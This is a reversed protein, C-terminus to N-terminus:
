QWNGNCARAGSQCYVVLGSCPSSQTCVPSESGSPVYYTIGTTPIYVDGNVITPLAFSAAQHASSNNFQPVTVAFTPNHAYINSNSTSWELALSSNYANLEAGAINNAYPNAAMSVTAMGWVVGTSTDTGNSTALVSGGPYYINTSVDPSSDYVPTAFYGNYNFSAGSFNATATANVTLTQPGNIETITASQQGTGPNVTITDGAVVQTAFSYSTSTLTITNSGSSWNVTGTGAQTAAPNTSFQLGTLLENFPWYYLTSNYFATSTIRHCAGANSVGLTWCPESAAAFPFYNGSDNTTYGGLSSQKLLYGMGGKDITLLWNNSNSDTFLLIGSASMDWDNQNMSEATSTCAAPASTTGCNTILNTTGNGLLNSAFLGGQPTFSQSPSTGVGSTSYTFDVISSGWNLGGTQFGGNGVGVFAHSTGSITNAAPGRSSMWIGGGHGCWNPQNQYSTPASTNCAPTGSDPAPTPTTDFIFDPTTSIVSGSVSYGFLWGDYPYSSSAEPVASGFPIYIVNSPTASSNRVELLASRQLVSGPSFEVSGNNTAYGQIEM